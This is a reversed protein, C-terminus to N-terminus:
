FNLFIFCFNFTLIFTDNCMQKRKRKKYIGVSGIMYGISFSFNITSMTELSIQYVYSMDVMTAGIMNM